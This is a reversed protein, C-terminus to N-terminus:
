KGRRTKTWVPYQAEQLKVKLAHNEQIKLMERERAKASQGESFAVGLYLGLSFWFGSLGLCVCFIRLPWCKM